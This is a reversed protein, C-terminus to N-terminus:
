FCARIEIKFGAILLHFTARKSSFNMQSIVVKGRGGPENVEDEQFKAVEIHHKKLLQEDLPPCDEAYKNLFEKYRQLM